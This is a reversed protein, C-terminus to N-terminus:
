GASSGTRVTIHSPATGSSGAEVGVHPLRDLWRPLYWNREGLLAMAAPLLVSRIVTADILVAVALGVGAQKLDLSALTGFLAFVCVMVLAAATIVGATRRLSQRIAQRTPEGGTVAEQIRSLIFVHYDMSLGFLIVFLFLPLWSTITGDSRFRLVPEAWRHQFVLVLVGYAAAVSLLNLVLATLPVIVSRFVVLLLGFALVLVFAIAYPLGDRIQGTFDVDQATTGTVFAQAGAIHGVTQPVLTHRLTQVAQRSAPNAGNGTLPLSLAAATHDTNWTVRFPPHTIGDSAALAQLRALARILAQRESGPVQVVLYAPEGAGPFINQVATLTQLAPDDPATLAIAGPEAMHLSLAPYALALLLATALGAAALPRGLPRYLVQDAPSPRHPRGHGRRRRPLRVRGADIKPGLLTLVAPLVTVSGAVACVIVAITGAAIGNLVKLGPVFMGAMALAVISGSVVVTRGSTRSTTELAQGPAAGARREQRCRAVYFLAYDVGVALGILLIVTKASDQVPFVHSIPGLLGLGAAVATLGLLLPVVAAVVSGFALLLVLLTVPIALLEVRRLDGNVIRNQADNASADGTEAITIGPHARAAAAVAAPVSNLATVLRNAEAPNSPQGPVAAVLVSHGDASTTGTVPLGLATIRRETDRVAAAFGPDRSVLVTSHLYVYERPPGWLGQQDMIANGRASEGVAGDSLSKTGTAAGLAVCAAVFVFWTILARWPHSASWRGIRGPSIRISM